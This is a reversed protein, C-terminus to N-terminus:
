TYEIVQLLGQQRPLQRIVEQLVHGDGGLRAEDLTQRAHLPGCIDGGVVDDGPPVVQGRGGLQLCKNVVKPALTSHNYQPLDILAYRSQVVWQIYDFHLAIGVSSGTSPRASHSMWICLCGFGSCIAHRGWRSGGRPGPSCKRRDPGRYGQGRLANSFGCIHQDILSHKPRAAVDQLLQQLQVIEVVAVKVLHAVREQPFVIQEGIALAVVIPVLLRDDSWQTLQM